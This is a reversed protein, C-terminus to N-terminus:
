ESPKWESWIWWKCRESISCSSNHMCCCKSHQWSIQLSPRIYTHQQQQIHTNASALSAGGGLFSLRTSLSLCVSSTCPPPHDAAPLFLQWTVTDGQILNITNTQFSHRLQFKFCKTVFHSPCSCFYFLTLVIELCLLRLVTREKQLWVYATDERRAWANNCKLTQAENKIKKSKNSILISLWNLLLIVNIGLANPTICISIFILFEQPWQFKHVQFHLQFIFCSKVFWLSQHNTIPECNGRDLRSKEGPGQQGAASLQLSFSPSDMSRSEWYLELWFVLRMRVDKLCWWSLVM